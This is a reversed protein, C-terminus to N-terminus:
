QSCSISFGLDQRHCQNLLALKEGKMKRASSAAASSPFGKKSNEGEEEQDEKSM